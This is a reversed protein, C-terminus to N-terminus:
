ELITFTGKFAYIHGSIFRQLNLRKSSFKVKKLRKGVKQGIKKYGKKVKKVFVWKVAQRLRM